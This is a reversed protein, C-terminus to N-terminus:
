NVTATMAEAAVDCKKASCFVYNPLLHVGCMNDGIELLVCVNFGDFEACFGEVFGLRFVCLNGASICVSELLFVCLNGACVCMFKWCFCLSFGDIEACLGEVFGLRFVCSNEASICMFKWDLVCM